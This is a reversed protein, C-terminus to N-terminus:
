GPLAQVIQILVPDTASVAWVTDGIPVLVEYIGDPAYPGDSVRTLERGDVTVTESVVDAYEITILPLLGSLLTAADGGRVRFATISAGLGDDTPVYTFALSVDDISFGHGDLFAELDALRAQGVADAPDQAAVLERGTRSAVEVPVEGIEDPFREMLEADGHFTPEPTPPQISAYPAPSPIPVGACDFGTTERLSAEETQLRLWADYAAVTSGLATRLADAEGLSTEALAVGVDVLAFGLASLYGGMSAGPAWSEPLAELARLAQDGALGATIAAIAVGDADGALASQGLAALVDPIDRVRDRATCVASAWADPPLGPAASVTPSPDVSPGASQAQGAAPALLVLLGLGAVAARRSSWTIM